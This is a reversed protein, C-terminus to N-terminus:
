AANGTHPDTTSSQITPRNIWTKEPVEPATPCGHRFRKPHAAYAADLVDQRTAKAILWTGDHVSGPTYFGIGSHRHDTNYYDAFRNMFARAEGIDSFEDPFAPCYKVTKFLAESFPNDNSVKPRSLSRAISLDSLLESVTKGVMPSGNDSHIHGPATGGNAAVAAAIFDRALVQGERAHVEVHIIKRSHIDMIVYANFWVGRGPGKLKTIDWSWVANPGTAVLHPIARPPHSAQARRERVQSHSRLIRYMTSVSCLYVGEDLLVAWVQEPAKDTFRDDDLVALVADAEVSSLAAPQVARASARKPGFVPSAWRYLSSRSLGLIRCASATSFLVRVREFAPWM